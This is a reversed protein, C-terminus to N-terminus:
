RENKKVYQLDRFRRYLPLSAKKDGMSLSQIHVRIFSSATEEEIFWTFCDM